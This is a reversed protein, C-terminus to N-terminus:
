QSTVEGVSVIAQGQTTASDNTPLNNNQTIADAQRNKIVVEKLEVVLELGGENEKTTEQRTSTIIMNEYTTKASVVTMVAHSRQLDRIAELVRTSRASTGATAVASGVTVGLGALAAAGGSLLSAAVGATVGIGADLVGPLGGAADLATKILNDSVGVTMILSMPRTIANDNATGKSELPYESVDTRLESSEALIADFYIGGIQPRGSM